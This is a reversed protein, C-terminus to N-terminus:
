SFRGVAYIESRIDKYHRDLIERIAAKEKPTAGKAEFYLNTNLSMEGSESEYDSTMDSYHIHTNIEMM